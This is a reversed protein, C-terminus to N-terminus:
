SNKSIIKFHFGHEPINSALQLSSVQANRDVYYGGGGGGRQHM